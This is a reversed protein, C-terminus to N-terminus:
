RDAGKARFCADCRIVSYVQGLEDYGAESHFGDRGRVGCVGCRVDPRDWRDREERNRESLARNMAFLHNATM